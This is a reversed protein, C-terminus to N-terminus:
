PKRKANAAAAAARRVSDARVSDTLKARASRALSDLTISRRNVADTVRQSRQPDSSLARATAMLQDPTVKERALLLARAASDSRAVSDLRAKQLSDRQKLQAPTAPRGGPGIPQPLPNVQNNLRDDHLRRLSGMVRVYTSDNVGGSPGSEAQCAVVSVALGAAILRAVVARPRSM